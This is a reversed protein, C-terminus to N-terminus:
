QAGKETLFLGYRRDEEVIHGLWWHRLFSYINKAGSTKDKGWEARLEEMKRLYEKHLALHNDFDTYGNEQLLAEEDRLHNSAYESMEDLVADISDEGEEKRMVRYMTNILEILKRHQEDMSPIGTGYSSRWKIIDVETRRLEAFFVFPHCLAM